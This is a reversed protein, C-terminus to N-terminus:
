ETYDTAIFYITQVAASGSTGSGSVAVIRMTDTCWPAPRVSSAALAVGPSGTTGTGIAVPTSSLALSFAYKGSGAAAVQTFHCCDLWTTGGDPSDQLYVDLTGGTLGALVGVVLMSDYKLPLAFASGATTTSATSPVSLTKTFFRQERPM